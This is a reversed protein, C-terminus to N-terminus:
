RGATRRLRRVALVVGVSCRRASRARGRRGPRGRCPTCSRGSQAEPCSRSRRCPCTSRRSRADFPWHGAAEATELRRRRCSPRTSAQAVVVARAAARERRAARDRQTQQERRQHERRRRRRRQRHRRTAGQTITSASDRRADIRAAAPSGIRTGPGRACAARRRRRRVDIKRRRQGGVPQGTWAPPM